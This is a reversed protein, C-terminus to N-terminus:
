LIGDSEFAKLAAEMQEDTMNVGTINDNDIINGPDTNGKVPLSELASLTVELPHEQMNTLSMEFTVKPTLVSEAYEKNVVGKAVLSAIRSQVSQQKEAQFKNKIALLMGKLGEIAKDKEELVKNINSMDLTKPVSKTSIGLDELTFPKSTVPNLTGSKVLANAQEQTLNMEDGISMYIPAPELPSQDNSGIQEVAVLLDRLFSKKNTSGPLNIKVKRLSAKLSEILSIDDSEEHSSLEIMSLNVITTNEQFPEQDPVVAHTVLAVHVLGDTWTRALGDEFNNALSISVEKATNMAKYAPSNTDEINGAIDAQGYLTPVGKTDPAVWFVKWYGANNFSSSSKNEEIEKDTLPKADKHHDFPAPIKLGAQIMKNTTEAIKRLYPEDFKKTVRNGNSRVKYTNAPLIQKTLLPM